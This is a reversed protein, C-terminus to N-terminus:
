DLSCTGLSYHFVPPGLPEDTETPASVVAAVAGHCPVRRVLVSEIPEDHFLTTSSERTTEDTWRVVGTRMHELYGDGLWDAEGIRAPSLVPAGPGITLKQERSPSAPVFMQTTSNNVWPQVPRWEPVFAAPGTLRRPAFEFRGAADIATWFYSRDSDLEARWVASFGASGFHRGAILPAVLRARDHIRMSDTRVFGGDIEAIGAVITRTGIVRREGIVQVLMARGNVEVASVIDAVLGLSDLSGQSVAFFPQAPDIWAYIGPAVVLVRHGVTIAQPRLGELVRGGGRPTVGALVAHNVSGTLMDVVVYALSFHNSDLDDFVLLPIVVYHDLRAAPGMRSSPSRRVLALLRRLPISETRSWSVEGCRQCPGFGADFPLFVDNSIDADMPTADIGADPPSTDRPPGADFPTADISPADFSPADFSPADFSPADFSPADISPADISPADISPADISPADISPADISPADISPADISPADFLGGDPFGGDRPGGGEAASGGDRPPAAEFGHSDFCGILLFGLSGALRLSSRDFVSQRVGMGLMYRPRKDAALAGSAIEM